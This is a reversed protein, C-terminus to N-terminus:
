EEFKYGFEITYSNFPAPSCAPCITEKGYCMWQRSTGKDKTSGICNNYHKCHPCFGESGYGKDTAETM